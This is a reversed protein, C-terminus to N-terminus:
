AAVVAKRPRGGKNKTTIGAQAYLAERDVAHITDIHGKVGALDRYGEGCKPCQVGMDVKTQALLEYDRKVLPSPPTSPIGRLKNEANRAEHKATNAEAARIRGVLYLERAQKIIQEDYEPNIADSPSLERVFRPASGIQGSTGDDGILWAIAEEPKHPVKIKAPPSVERNVADQSGRVRLRMVGPVTEPSDGSVPDTWIADHAPMLFSERNGFDKTRFEDGPNYLRPESVVTPRGYRM